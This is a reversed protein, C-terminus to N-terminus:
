GTEMRVVDGRQQADEVPQLQAAVAEEDHLMGDVDHPMRVPQDVDAGSGPFAAPAHDVASGCVPKRLDVLRHRASVDEPAAAKWRVLGTGGM